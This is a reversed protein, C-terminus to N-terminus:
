AEHDRDGTHQRRDRLVREETAPRGAKGPPVRVRPDSHFTEVSSEEKGSSREACEQRDPLGGDVARPAGVSGSTRFERM